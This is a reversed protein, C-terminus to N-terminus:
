LLPSPQKTLNSKFAPPLELVVPTILRYESWSKGEVKREIINHGERRLDLIRASLRLIRYENVCQVTSFWEGSKLRNLILVKQTM